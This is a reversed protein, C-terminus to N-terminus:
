RLEPQQVCSAENKHICSTTVALRQLTMSSVYYIIGHKYEEAVIGSKAIYSPNLMIVNTLKTTLQLM